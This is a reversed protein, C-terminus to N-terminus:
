GGKEKKIVGRQALAEPSVRDRKRKFFVREVHHEAVFAAITDMIRDPMRVVDVIDYGSQTLVEGETPDATVMHLSYPPEADTAGLIVWLQPTGTALNDRYNPTESPYLEIEASGAYFTSLEDGGELKTWPATEPVDELVAVPRWVFDVWQSKARRREVVVGVPIRLLPQVPSM